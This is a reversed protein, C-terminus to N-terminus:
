DILLFSGDAEPVDTLSFLYWRSPPLLTFSRTCSSYSFAGDESKTELGELLLVILSVSSFESSNGPSHFLAVFGITNGKGKMFAKSQTYYPFYVTFSAIATFWCPSWSTQIKIITYTFMWTIPQILIWNWISETYFKFKLREIWFIMVKTFFSLFEWIFMILYLLNSHILTPFTICIWKFIIRFSGQSVIPLTSCAIFHIRGKWWM